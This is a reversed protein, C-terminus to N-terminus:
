ISKMEGTTEGKLFDPRLGFGLARAPDIQFPADGIAGPSEGAFIDMNEGDFVRLFFCLFFFSSRSTSPEGVESFIFFEKM